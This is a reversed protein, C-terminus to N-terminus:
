LKGQYTGQYGEVVPQALTFFALQLVRANQELQFGAPNYVVLLAQARGEYGADWVASHIAVGSRLLTSRPWSLAMVNKPLHVIENLAALYSGPPLTVWGDTFAIPEQQPLTRDDPSAGLRGPGALRAVSRLTLDIGNPQVQQEPSLLDEM